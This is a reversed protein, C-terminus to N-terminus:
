KKLSDEVDMLCFKCKMTMPYKKLDKIKDIYIFKKNNLKLLFKTYAEVYKENEDKSSKSILNELYNKNKNIINESIINNNYLSSLFVFLNIYRNKDLIYKCFKDYNNDKDKNNNQLIDCLENFTEEFIKQTQKNYIKKYFKVYIDIYFSQLVIKNILNKIMFTILVKRNDLILVIKQYITDFNDKTLKNLLSNIKKELEEINFNDMKRNFIKLDKDNLKARIKRNLNLINLTKYPLNQHIKNKFSYIFDPTYYITM